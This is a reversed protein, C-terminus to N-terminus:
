KSKELDARRRHRSGAGNRGFAGGTKNEHNCTQARVQVRGCM